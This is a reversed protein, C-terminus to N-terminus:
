EATETLCNLSNIVLLRQEAVYYAWESFESWDSVFIFEFGNRVAVEHDYRSDGLFLTPELIDGNLRLREIIEDKTEPSGFIGADFFGEVGRLCLLRRLEIQDSGSLVMWRSRITEARLKSLGSPISCSLLGEWIRSSFERSLEDVIEKSARVGLIEELLYAFKKYRSAGANKLHFKVLEEAVSEGFRKAVERFAETKLKNSDLLVGDCDFVITRYKTLDLPKATITVM